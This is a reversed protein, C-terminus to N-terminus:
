FMYVVDFVGIVGVEFVYFDILVDDCQVCRVGIEEEEEM